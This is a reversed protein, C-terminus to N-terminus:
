KTIWTKDGTWVHLKIDAGTNGAWSMALVSKNETAGTRTAGVSPLFELVLLIVQRGQFPTSSSSGGYQANATLRYLGVPLADPSNLGVLGQTKSLVTSDGFAGTWLMGIFPEIIGLSKLSNDVSWNEVGVKTVQKTSQLWGGNIGNFTYEGTVEGTVSDVTTAKATKLMTTTASANYVEVYGQKGKLPATTFTNSIFAYKGAPIVQLGDQNILQKGTLYEGSAYNAVNALDIPDNPNANLWQQYFKSSVVFNETTAYGGSAGGGAAVKVWGGNSRAYQKSDSPAETIYGADNTFASVQTPVTPITPKNTLYTYSGNFLTPKNLIQAKGSTANWDANVQAVPTPIEIQVNGLADPSTNNVSKVTGSGSGSGSGGTVVTWVGDKRGYTQADKPAEQFPALAKAEEVATVAKNAETTAKTAQLTATTAQTTASVASQKSQAAAGKAEVVQTAVGVTSQAVATTANELETTAVDIRTILKEFTQNTAM